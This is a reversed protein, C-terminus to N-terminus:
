KEPTKRAATRQRILRRCQDLGDAILRHVQTVSIDLEAAIERLKCGRLRHMAIARRMPEPLGDLAAVLTRLEDRHVAVHEPTPRDDAADHTAAQGRVIVRAERHQRRTSDVAMNRVIRYLYSAPEGIEQLRAADRLRLYADQVIDESRAFDTCIRNAYLVLATHHAAYVAALDSESHIAQGAM